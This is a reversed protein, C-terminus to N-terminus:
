AGAGEERKNGSAKKQRARYSDFVVLSFWFSVLVGLLVYSRVYSSTPVIIGTTGALQFGLGSNIMGLIIAGRGIWRHLYAFISKGQIADRAKELASTVQQGGVTEGLGVIGSDTELEVVNRLFYPGHCGSAALLPPDPLAIPTVKLGTIRPASGSRAAEAASGGRVPLIMGLAALRILDRRHLDLLTRGQPPTSLHLEECGLRDTPPGSAM